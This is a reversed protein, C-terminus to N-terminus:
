ASFISKKQAEISKLLADVDNPNQIFRQLSPIMVTSAFDPRTDRDMFQAIQKANAVLEAGKKQLATYSATDNDNAAGIVSSDSKLYVGQAKGSALYKALAKAGEMNKAKSSVMYGDIPAEIADQGHAPNIAPFPFFDLDDLEEKPFQQGVFLGLLYMGSKKQVLSQAAEQWTRGNADPQHLPIMSRWTDFVTKVKPDQWSEKGAMLSVHFDYGNVRMNIHDFTGMAPWGDKDGFAIPTLGDKKMRAGLANLEDLNKPATYGFKAWVSKRYYMAWPYYTSPIFYQKGDEGTSAKKMAESYNGGFETWLDSIDEALKQKAFFQMRFGAFWAFLDDPKGQLYRNINEQYSNHDITNLQIKGGSETQYAAVVAEIAAKPVADSQNSGWTVTEKASGKADDGGGEDGGCGALIAPVGFAAAGVGATRLLSRRSLSFPSSDSSM